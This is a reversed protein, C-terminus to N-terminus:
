RSEVEKGGRVYGKPWVLRGASELDPGNSKKGKYFKSNIKIKNLYSQLEEFM